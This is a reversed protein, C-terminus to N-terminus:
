ISVSRKFSYTTIRKDGLKVLLGQEIGFKLDRSATATSINKFLACYMKRSFVQDLEDKAIMLRDMATKPQYHLKQTYSLLAQEILQLCFEIFDTSEGKADCLALAAYYDKQRDKILSEIAM